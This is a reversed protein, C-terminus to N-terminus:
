NLRCTGDETAEKGTLECRVGSKGVSMKKWKKFWGGGQNLMKTPVMTGAECTVWRIIGPRVGNVLHYYTLSSKGELLPYPARKNDIM